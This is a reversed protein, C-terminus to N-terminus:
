PQDGYAAIIRDWEADYRAQEVRHQEVQEIIWARFHPPMERPYRREGVLYTAVSQSSPHRRKAAERQARRRRIRDRTLQYAAVYAYFLPTICFAGLVLWWPSM